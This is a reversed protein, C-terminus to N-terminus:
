GYKRLLGCGSVTGILLNRKNDGIDDREVGGYTLNGTSVVM